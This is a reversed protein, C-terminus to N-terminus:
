IDTQLELMGTPEVPILRNTYKKAAATQRYGTVKPRGKQFRFLTNKTKQRPLFQHVTTSRM